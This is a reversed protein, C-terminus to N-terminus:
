SRTTERTRQAAIAAALQVRLLRPQDVEIALDSGDRLRILVLRELGIGMEDIAALSLESSDVGTHVLRESTLYLTGGRPHAARDTWGAAELLASGHVAHLVEGPQLFAGAAGDPELVPLGQAKYAQRADHAAAEDQGIRDAIKEADRLAADDDTATLPLPLSADLASM